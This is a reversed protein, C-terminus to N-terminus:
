AWIEVLMIATVFILKISDIIKKFKFINLM